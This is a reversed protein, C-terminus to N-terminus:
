RELNTLNITENNIVDRPDGNQLFDKLHIRSMVHPAYVDSAIGLKYGQRVAEDSWGLDEGQKHYRYRVNQVVEPTMMKSAMIIDTEFFSGIKYDDLRREGTMYVHPSWSMTSPFSIGEPTMYSLINVADVKTETYEVMLNLTEPNVILIDSDLSLFRDFDRYQSKELLSNRLEVMTYYREYSWARVHNQLGKSKLISEHDQHKEVDNVYLDFCWVEPNDDHWRHLEAMTSPDDPGLEFVFGIDELPFNQQKICEFWYPLIWERRYVPM